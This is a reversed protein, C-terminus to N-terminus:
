SSEGRCFSKFFVLNMFIGILALSIIATIRYSLLGILIFAVGSAFFALCSKLFSVIAQATYYQKKFSLYILYGITGIYPIFVLAIQKKSLKRKQKGM